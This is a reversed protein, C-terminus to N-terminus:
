KAFEDGLLTHLEIESLRKIADTKSLELMRRSLAESDKAIKLTLERVTSDSFIRVIDELEEETFCKDLSQAYQRIGEKGRSTKPDGQRWVLLKAASEAEESPSTTCGVLAAVMVTFITAVYM